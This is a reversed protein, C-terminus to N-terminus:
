WSNRNADRWRVSDPQTTTKIRRTLRCDTRRHRTRHDNPGDTISTREIESNTKNKKLKLKKRAINIIIMKVHWDILARMTNMADRLIIIMNHPARRFSDFSHRRSLQLRVFSLITLTRRTSRRKIGHRTSLHVDARRRGVTIGVVVIVVSPRHDIQLSYFRM